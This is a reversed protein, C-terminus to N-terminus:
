GDLDQLLAAIRACYAAFSYREATGPAAARFAALRARDDIVTMVAATLAEESLEELLLGTEPTM